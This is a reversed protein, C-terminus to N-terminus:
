AEIEYDDDDFVNRLKKRAKKSAQKYHGALNARDRSHKLHAFQSQHSLDFEALENNLANDNSSPSVSYTNM